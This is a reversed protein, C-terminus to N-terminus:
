MDREFAYFLSELFASEWTAGPRLPKYHSLPSKRKDAPTPTHTNVASVVLGRPTM